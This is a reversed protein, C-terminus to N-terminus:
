RQPETPKEPAAPPSTVEQEAEPAAAPADTTPADADAPAPTAEGPTEAAPAAPDAAPAPAANPDAAPAAPPATDVPAGAPAAAPEEYDDPPAGDHILNWRYQLYASKVTAYEDASGELLPDATDMVYSRTDALELGTVGVTELTDLNAESLAVRYPDGVREVGFGIADRLTSPGFLPLMVYPGSKVGWVALTQGFDEPEEPLGMDTAHDALGGVGLTTNILFRTATRLAQKVKGQLIANIFSFPEDVNNFANGIGRQAATPTVARYVKTAPTVVAKDLGRNFSYISRNTKELPDREAALQHGPTTACAALFSATLLVAVRTARL